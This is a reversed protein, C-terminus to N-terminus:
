TTTAKKRVSGSRKDRYQRLQHTLAANIWLRILLYEM